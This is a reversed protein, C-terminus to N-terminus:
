HCFVSFHLSGATERSGILTKGQIMFVQHDSATPTVHLSKEHTGFGQRIGNGTGERM